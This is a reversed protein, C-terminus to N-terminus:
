CYYVWYTHGQSCRLKRHDGFAAVTPRVTLTVDAAPVTVRENEGCNPCTVRATDVPKTPKDGQKQPITESM